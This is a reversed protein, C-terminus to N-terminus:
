ENESCKACYGKISVYSDFCEFGKDIRLKQSLNDVLLGQVDIIAGCKKCILHHHKEKEQFIFEYKFIDGINIKSIVGNNKFLDLSRYVTAIGISEYDSKVLNYIDEASLHKDRNKILVALIHKRQVTLTNNLEQAISNILEEVYNSM